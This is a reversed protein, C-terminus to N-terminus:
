PTWRWVGQGRFAGLLATPRRPDIAIKPNRLDPAGSLLTWHDGGDLSRFIGRGTTAAYWTATRPDRALQSLGAGDPLDGLPLWHVGGDVSTFLGGDTAALLRGETEPDAAIAHAVPLDRAVERWSAGGDKSRFVRPKEPFSDIETVWRRRPDFPDVAYATLSPCLDVSAVHTCAAPLGPGAQRWTAGADDSMWLFVHGFSDDDSLFTLAHLAVARPRALDPLLSQVGSPAAPVATWTGGADLSRVVGGGYAGLAISGGAGILSLPDVSSAAWNRGDGRYLQFPGEGDDSAAALVLLRRAAGGGPPPLAVLAGTSGAAIGGDVAMWSRGGDRSVSLGGVFGDGTYIVSGGAAVVGTAPAPLPLSWSGGGDLTEFLLPHFGDDAVLEAAVWAHRADRPDVAVDYCSVHDPSVPPFSLPLWHAGADDSRVLCDLANVTLGYLTDPASPALRGATFGGPYTSRMKWSRGQDNSVTLGQDDFWLLESRGGHVVIEGGSYLPHLSAGAQFSRGGDRSVSVRTDSSFGTREVRYLIESRHPDVLLQFVDVGQNPPTAFRRSWSAGADGSRWLGGDITWAWIVRPDEPDIALARSPRGLGRQLDHWTTGADDSRWLYSDGSAADVARAYLRWPQGSDLQVAIPGQVPGGVPSWAALAPLAAALALGAALAARHLLSNTNM